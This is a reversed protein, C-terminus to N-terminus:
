QCIPSNVAIADCRSPDGEAAVGLHYLRCTFSNGSSSNATFHV